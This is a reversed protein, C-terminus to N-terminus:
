SLVGQTDLPLAETQSLPTHPTNLVMIIDDACTCPSAGDRILQNPGTSMCSTIPGPVAFVDRGQQAAHVATTMTGSALEGEIVLVAHSLGSIIRNRWPFHAAFSATGLPLESCIAGGNELLRDALPLHNRPTILDVGSALVAVTDGMAELCTRHAIADVGFALGSVITAHLALDSILQTTVELGYSTPKRTGVVGLWKEAMEPWPTGRWFLLLPANPIANLRPPLESLIQIGEKKIQQLDREAQNPDSNKRLQEIGVWDTDLIQVTERPNKFIATASGFIRLLERALDPHGWLGRHLALLHLTETDTTM